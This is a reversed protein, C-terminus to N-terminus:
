AMNAEEKMPDMDGWQSALREDSLCSSAAGRFLATFEEGTYGEREKMCCVNDISRILNGGGM